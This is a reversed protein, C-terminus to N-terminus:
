IVIAGDQLEAYMGDVQHYVGQLEDGIEGLVYKERLDPKTVLSWRLQQYSYKAFALWQPYNIAMPDQSFYVKGANIATAASHGIFLM